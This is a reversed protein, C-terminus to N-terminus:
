VSSFTSVSESSPSQRLGTFIAAQELGCQNAQKILELRQKETQQTLLMDDIGCTFGRFQLFLTFLRGLTTLLKGAETAGYLEYVAHVLGHPKAGSLPFLSLSLSLSTVCIM